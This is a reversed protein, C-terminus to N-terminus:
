RKALETKEIFQVAEFADNKVFKSCRHLDDNEGYGCKVAVSKIEAKAASSIDLSTDGIMWCHAPDAKLAHIAKLVPEPHPKPNIVHERGILVKFYHMVGLHELLEVSYEGTKTTVVGLTAFENAYEIAEKANPLLSTMQRNIQRYRKKYTAVYHPVEEPTVGLHAFMFDLPHGILAQIKHRERQVDGQENFTYEFSQLIAETSDILTGDLDFLITVM